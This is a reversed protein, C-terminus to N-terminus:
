GIYISISKAIYVTDRPLRRPPATQEIFNHYVSINYVSTYLLINVLMININIM